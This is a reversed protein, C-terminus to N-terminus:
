LGGEAAEGGGGGGVWVGDEADDGCKEARPLRVRGRPGRGARGVRSAGFRAGESGVRCDIWDLTIHVAELPTPEAPAALLGCIGRPFVVGDLTTLRAGLTLTRLRHLVGINIPGPVLTPHVASHSLDPIDLLELTQSAAQMLCWAFSAQASAIEKTPFLANFMDFSNYNAVSKLRMRAEPAAPPLNEAPRAAPAFPIYVHFLHLRDLQDCRAISVPPLDKICELTLSRLSPLVFLSDLGSRIGDSLSSWSFTAGHNIWGFPAAKDTSGLATDITFSRVRPAISDNQTLIHHLDHPDPQPKFSPTIAIDSFIYE